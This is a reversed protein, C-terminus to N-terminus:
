YQHRIGYIQAVLDLPDRSIMSMYSIGDFEFGDEGEIHLSVSPARRM